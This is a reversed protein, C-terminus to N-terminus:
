EKEKELEKIRDVLQNLLNATIKTDITGFLKYINDVVEQKDVLIVAVAKACDRSCEFVLSKYEQDNVKKYTVKTDFKKGNISNFLKEISKVRQEDLEVM